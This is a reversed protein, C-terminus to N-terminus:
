CNATDCTSDCFCDGIFYWTNLERRLKNFLFGTENVITTTLPRIASCIILCSKQAALHVIQAIEKMLTEQLMSAALMAFHTEWMEIETHANFFDEDTLNYM